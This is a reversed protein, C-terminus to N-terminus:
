AKGEKLAILQEYCAPWDSEPIQSVRPAYQNVIKKVQEYKGSNPAALEQVIARLDELTIKKEAPEAPTPDPQAEPHEPPVEPLGTVANPAEKHSAGELAAIIRDLRARDEACLEFTITNSM